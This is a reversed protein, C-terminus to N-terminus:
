DDIDADVDGGGLELEVDGVVAYANVRVSQCPRCGEVGQALAGLREASVEGDVALRSGSGAEGEADGHCALVQAFGPGGSSGSGRAFCAWTM